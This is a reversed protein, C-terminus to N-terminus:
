GGGLMSDIVVIEEVDPNIQYIMEGTRGNAVMGGVADSYTNDLIKRAEELTVERVEKQGIIRVKITKNM